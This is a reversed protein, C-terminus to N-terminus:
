APSGEKYVSVEVGGGGWGREGSVSFCMDGIGWVCLCAEPSVVTHKM